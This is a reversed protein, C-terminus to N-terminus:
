FANGYTRWLVHQELLYQPGSSRVSINRGTPVASQGLEPPLVITPVKQDLTMTLDVVRVGGGTIAGLLSNLLGNSKRKSM